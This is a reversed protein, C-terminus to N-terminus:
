FIIKWSQVKNWLKDVFSNGKLKKYQKYLHEFNEYDDATWEQTDKHARYNTLIADRLLCKDTETRDERDSKAKLLWNRFPKCVLILLTTSGSIIGVMLSIIQLTETM